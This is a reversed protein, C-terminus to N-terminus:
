LGVRKRCKELLEKAAMKPDPSSLVAQAEEEKVPFANLLDDISIHPEVWKGEWTDFIRRTKPNGTFLKEEDIM